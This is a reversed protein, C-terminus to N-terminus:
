LCQALVEAFHAFALTGGRAREVGELHALCGVDTSLLVEAGADRVADLKAVAIAEATGPHTACFAGGFGCCQEAESIPLLTLGPVLGLLLTHAPPYGLSRAHCAPHFAAALPRPLAPWERVGLEHWLFEGLEFARGGSEVGLDPWGHQMMAACSASPVVAPGAGVAQAAKRALAAAPARAGSNYAPQGCCPERRITAVEAGAHALVRRTAVLADEWVAGALCTGFLAVRSAM